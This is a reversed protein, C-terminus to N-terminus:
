RLARYAYQLAAHRRGSRHTGDREILGERVGWTMVPGMARPERPAEIGLSDLEDWVDDSTLRDLRAVCARLARHAHWLWEGDAGQEARDQADESRQEPTPPTIIGKGECLLCRLRQYRGTGRCRRCLTDRGWTVM